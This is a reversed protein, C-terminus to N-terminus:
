PTRRDTTVGDAPLPRGMTDFVEGLVDVVAGKPVTANFTWPGNANNTTWVYTGGVHSIDGSDLTMKSDGVVGMGGVAPVSVKTLPDLTITMTFRASAAALDGVGPDSVKLTWPGVAVPDTFKVTVSAQASVTGVANSATLTFTKVESLVGSSLSLTGTTYGTRAADVGAVTGDPATLTVSDANDVQWSLSSAYGPLIRDSPATFSVIVPATLDKTVSITLDKAAVNDTSLSYKFDGTNTFPGVPLSGSSTSALTAGSADAVTVNGVNTTSWHLITSDGVKLNYKDATFSSTPQLVSTDQVMLDLTQNAAPSDTSLSFTYKGATGFPGVLFSGSSLSSLEGGSGFVSM